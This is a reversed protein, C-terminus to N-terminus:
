KGLSELRALWANFRPCQTRISTLGINGSVLPGNRVKDYDPIVQVIRKSPATDRNDNIDEPTPFEQRIGTLRGIVDQSVEPLIAFASPDSFLLGEFEYKQVYPIVRSADLSRNIKSIATAGIREELVALSDNGKDDFGYFDVLSTVRDFSWFLLAMRSALRDVTVHGRLVNPVPEMGMPRLYDALVGNVFAEETEGEVVVALRIM